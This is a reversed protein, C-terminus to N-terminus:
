VEKLHNLILLRVYQSVKLGEANALEKLEEKKINPLTFFVQSTTKDNVTM